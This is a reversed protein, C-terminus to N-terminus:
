RYCGIYFTDIEAMGKGTVVCSNFQPMIIARDLNSGNLGQNLSNSDINLLHIVDSITLEKKNNLDIYIADYDFDIGMGSPVTKSLFVFLINDKVSYNYNYTHITSSYFNKIRANVSDFNDLTIYPVGNNEEVYSEVIKNTETVVNNDGNDNNESIVDNNDKAIIKDYVLYGGLSLVLISLIIIIVNKM